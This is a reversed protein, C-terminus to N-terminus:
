CACAETLQMFWASPEDEDSYRASTWGRMEGTWEVKVIVEVGRAAARRRMDNLNCRNCRTLASM